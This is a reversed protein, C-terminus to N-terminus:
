VTLLTICRQYLECRDLLQKLIIGEQNPNDQGRTGGLPGLHANFDGAILVPGLRQGESVLRELEILHECYTELGQGACPLYVGLITFEAPEPSTLKLCIGSIQDSSICSIPTADLTKRWLIGVGGCGRLLSSNEDLRADTKTEAAFSPHVQSLRHSEFPWLWHETVVVVDSDNDALQHLYPEGNNLGRCNWTTVRLQQQPDPCLDLHSNSPFGQRMSHMNHRWLRVIVKRNDSITLANYLHKKLIKVKFTTVTTPNIISYNVIPCQLLDEILTKGVENVPIPCKLRVYLLCTDVSTSSDRKERKLDSVESKLHSLDSRLTNIEKMLISKSGLSAPEQEVPALIPAESPTERQTPSISLDTNIAAISPRRERLEVFTSAARKGNKLLVRPVPHNNKVALTLDAIDQALKKLSPGNARKLRKVLIDKPHALGHSKTDEFLQTRVASLQDESHNFLLSSVLDERTLEPDIGIRTLADM